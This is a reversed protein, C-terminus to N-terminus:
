FQYKFSLFLFSNKALSNWELNYYAELTSRESFTFQLDVGAILTNRASREIKLSSAKSFAISSFHVSRENDLFERQWGILIEPSFSCKGSTWMAKLRTGLLSRLSDAHQREFRLDGVGGDHERYSDVDLCIYQLSALPTLQFDCCNEITYEIGLLADFESGRPSGKAVKKQTVTSINREISYYELGGGMIGNVFFGPAFSPAYTGYIDAHFHHTKCKGWKHQQTGSPGKAETSLHEYEALFGVGVQSFARDIGMLVGESHTNLSAQGKVGEITRFSKIPGLYISWPNNLTSLGNCCQGCRNKIKDRMRDMENDLLINLQNVSSFILQNLGVVQDLLTFYLIASNPLYRVHPIFPTNFNVIEDFVGAVGGASQLILFTDDPSLTANPTEAVELTGSLESTGTVNLQSFVTPNTLNIGLTGTGSQTYNGEIRFIGPNGTLRAEGPILTGSNQVEAIPDGFFGQVIGTGGLTGAAGIVLPDNVRILTNDTFVGGNIHLTGSQFLTGVGMPAVTGQNDLTVVGGNMTFDLCSVYCGVSNSGVSGMNNFTLTGGNMTGHGVRFLIGNTMSGNVTGNNISSIVGGNMTFLSTAIFSCGSAQSGSITGNNTNAIIGNNIIMEGSGTNSGFVSGLVGGTMNGNNINSIVGGNIIFTSGGSLFAAGISPGTIFANNVNTINGGNIVMSPGNFSGFLSGTGQTVLGQNTNSVVGGNITILQNASLTSGAVGGMISGTNQVTTVGNNIELSMISAAFAGLGDNITGSNSVILNGGNVILANNEGMLTGTGGGNVTGQNIAALTGNHLTCIQDVILACGVGSSIVNPNLINLTGSYVDLSGQHIFFAIPNNLLIPSPGYTLTGPGMFDVSSGPVTPVDTQIFHSGNAVTITARGGTSQQDLILTNTGSPILTYSQSNNFNLFTVTPSIDLTITRPATIVPGFTAKDDQGNPVCPTWNSPTSWNGDSDVNWSGQCAAYAGACLFLAPILATLRLM